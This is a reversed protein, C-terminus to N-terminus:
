RTDDDGQPHQLAPRQTARSSYNRSRSRRMTLRTRSETPSDNFPLREAPRTSIPYTNPPTGKTYRPTSGTAYHIQQAKPTTYFDRKPASNPM